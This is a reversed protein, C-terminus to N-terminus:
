NNPTGAAKHVNVELAEKKLFIHILSLTTTYYTYELADKPSYGGIMGFSFRMTSNADPYFDKYSEMDRVAENLLRENKEIKM